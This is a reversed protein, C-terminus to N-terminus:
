EFIKKYEEGDYGNGELINRKVKDRFEKVTKPSFKHQLCIRVWDWDDKFERLFDDSFSKWSMVDWDIYDKFERLFDESIDTQWHIWDNINTQYFQSFAPPPGFKYFVKRLFDEPVIYSMCVFYLETDAYIDRRGLLEKQKRKSLLSKKSKKKKIIQKINTMINELM